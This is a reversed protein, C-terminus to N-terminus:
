ILDCCDAHKINNPRTARTACRGLRDFKGTRDSRVHTRVYCQPFVAGSATIQCWLDSPDLCSAPKPNPSRDVSLPVKPPAGNYGTPVNRAKHRVHAVTGNLAAVRTEEWIVEPL